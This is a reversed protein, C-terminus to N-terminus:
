FNASTISISLLGIWVRRMYPRLPAEGQGFMLRIRKINDM